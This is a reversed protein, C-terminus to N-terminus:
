GPLGAAVDRHVCLKSMDQVKLLAPVPQTTNQGCAATLLQMSPLLMSAITCYRCSLSVQAKGSRAAHSMFGTYVRMMSPLQWQKM